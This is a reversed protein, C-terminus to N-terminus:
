GKQIIHVSDINSGKVELSGKNTHMRPTPVFYRSYYDGHEADGTGIENPDAEIGIEGLMKCFKEPWSAPEYTDPEDDHM